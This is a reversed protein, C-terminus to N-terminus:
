SDTEVEVETYDSPCGTALLVDTFDDDVVKSCFILKSLDAYAHPTHFSVLTNPIMTCNALRVTCIADNDETHRIWFGDDVVNCGFSEDASDSKEWESQCDSATCNATGCSYTPVTNVDGSVNATCFISDSNDGDQCYEYREMHSSVDVLDYDSDTSNWVMIEGTAGSVKVEQKTCLDSHPRCCTIARVDGIAASENIDGSENLVFHEDTEGALDIHAKVTGYDSCLSRAGYTSGGAVGSSAPPSNNWWVEICTAANASIREASTCALASGSWSNAAKVDESVLSGALLMAAAIALFGAKM